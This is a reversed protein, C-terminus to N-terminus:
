EILGKEKLDNGIETLCGKIVIDKANFTAKYEDNWNLEIESNNDIAEKYDHYKVFFLGVIYKSDDSKAYLVDDTKLTRGSEYKPFHSSMKKNFDNIEFNTNYSYDSINLKIQLVNSPISSQYVSEPIKIDKDSEKLSNLSAFVFISVKDNNGLNELKEKPNLEFYREVTIGNDIPDYTGTESLYVADIKFPNEKSVEEKTEQNSKTGCGTLGIVMVGILLISLIKKKM